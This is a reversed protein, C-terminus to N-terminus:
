VNGTIRGHEIEEIRGALVPDRMAKKSFVETARRLKRKATALSYNGYTAIETLTYGEVFRLGLVIREDARMTALVQYFRRAVRGADPGDEDATGGPPEPAEPVLQVIRRTGRSRIERRVTNITVGTIWSEMAQSDRLTHVSGFINVFVQQVVDDHESDAGLLRWVLRNIRDGFRRYLEAAAAPERRELGRALAALGEARARELGVVEAGRQQRDSTM